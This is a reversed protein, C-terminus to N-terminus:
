RGGDRKRREKVAFADWLEQQVYVLLVVDPRLGYYSTRYKNRLREDLAPQVDLSTIVVPADPDDPPREWYGVREFRRLYWPLPWPDDTIVKVLMRHGDPHVAALKEVWDALRVVGRLPHAYVYPNRNDAAFRFNALYAQWGLHVAGVLLLVGVAGRGFTFRAVPASSGPASSAPVSSSAPALIGERVKGRGLAAAVGVGALLIMGHFFGLMCWPTKYPIASHIVTMVLTYLTLFRLLSLHADHVDEGSVSAGTHWMRGTGTHRTRSARGHEAQNEQTQDSAALQRHCGPLRYGSPHRGPLHHGSRISKGFVVVGAGIIALLVILGESWVPAPPYHFYLLIRFYYYWPHNHIGHGGARDFYTAYARLSDIPGSANTFFASFLTISVVVAVVAGVVFAKISLHSQVGNARRGGPAGDGRLTPSPECPAGDGESSTSETQLTAGAQAHGCASLGRPRHVRTERWGCPTVGCVRDSRVTQPVPSERRVTQPVPSERRVTQPVPSEGTHSLRSWVLTGLLAAAMAGYAIICTEKTAHMLGLCAGTTLAWGIRRTRAYRWGAAIAAFTFFVLLMEPIYYRNYFTMAPSIATLVAAWITAARGLGDAVLPLLLILGVGFLVPVIRFAFETTEGFDGAGSLWVSPFTFYYLTPGHYENPDYEYLGTQWLINFKYAHVAEDGHMPRLDLKPLRFALALPVTAM